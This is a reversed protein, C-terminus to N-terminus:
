TKTIKTAMEYGRPTAQMSAAHGIMGDAEREKHLLNSSSSISFQGNTNLHTQICYIIDFGMM